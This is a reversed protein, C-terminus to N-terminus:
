SRDDGPLRDSIWKGMQVVGESNNKMKVGYGAYSGRKRSCRLDDGAGDPAFDRYFRSRFIGLGTHPPM